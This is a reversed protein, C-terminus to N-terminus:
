LAKYTTITEKFFARTKEEDMNEMPAVAGKFGENKWTGFALKKFSTTDIAGNGNYGSTYLYFDDVVSDPIALGFGVSKNKAADLVVYGGTDFHHPWIRIDTDLNLEKVISELASQAICRFGLLRTLEAESPKQFVFDDTIKEYPLEYHLQYSYPAKKGMVATVGDIWQVVEQHTKGDLSIEQENEDTTLWRLSFTAYDLALKYGKDNLPWTELYGKEINFGVNTHSDDDKKALFNIGATALYQAAIHLQDTM